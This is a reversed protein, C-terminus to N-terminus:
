SESSGGGRMAAVADLIRQFKNDIKTEVRGLGEELKKQGKELNEVRALAEEPISSQGGNQAALQAETM